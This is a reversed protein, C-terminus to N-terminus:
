VVCVFHSRDRAGPTARSTTVRGPVLPLPQNSLCNSRCISVFFLKRGSVEREKRGKLADIDDSLDAFQKTREELSEIIENQQTIRQKKCFFESNRWILVRFLFGNDRLELPLDRYSVPPRPIFLPM